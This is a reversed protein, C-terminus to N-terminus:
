TVDAGNLALVGHANQAGSITTGALTVTADNATVAGGKTYVVNGDPDVTGPGTPTGHVGTIAADTLTGTAGAAYTLGEWGQAPDDATLTMGDITLEGHATVRAGPQFALTQGDLDWLWEERGGQPDNYQIVDSFFEFPATQQTVFYGIPSPYSRFGTSTVGCTSPSCISNFDYPAIWDTSGFVEVPYQDMSSLKSRMTGTPLAHMMSMFESPKVTDLDHDQVFFLDPNSAVNTGDVTPCYFDLPTGGASCHVYTFRETQGPRVDSAFEFLIITDPPVIPNPTAFLDVPGYSLGAIIAIDCQFYTNETGDLNWTRTHFTGQYTFSVTVDLDSHDDDVRVYIEEEGTSGNCDFVRGSQAAATPLLLFVSLTSLLLLKFM